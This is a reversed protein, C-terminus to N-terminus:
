LKLLPDLVMLLRHNVFGWGEFCCNQKEGQFWGGLTWKLISFKCQKGTAKLNLSLPSLLLFFLLMGLAHNEEM